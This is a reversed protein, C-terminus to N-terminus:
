SSFALGTGSGTLRTVFADTGTAGGLAAQAEKRLPFNSSATAGTLYVDGAGDVAIGNGADDAAGGLFTAFGKATGAANLQVVFADQGGGPAGQVAGPRAPFTAATSTTSGTVYAEC